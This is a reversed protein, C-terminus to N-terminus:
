FGDYFHLDIFQCYNNGKSQALDARKNSVLDIKSGKAASFLSYPSCLHDQVHMHLLWAFLSFEM